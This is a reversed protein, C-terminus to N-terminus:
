IISYSPELIERVRERDLSDGGGWTQFEHGDLQHLYEDIGRRIERNSAVPYIGDSENSYFAECYEIFKQHEDQEILIM